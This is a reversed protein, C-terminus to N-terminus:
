DRARPAAADGASRGSLPAQDGRASAALTCAITSVEVIDAASCGRSLDNAQRALGMLIPGYARAGGLREVLKYGINGADLDPFILVNAHGAVVSDKAKRMGVDPDLAADAQLEGDFHRDPRAARALRVATRVKEVHPHEASGRTSFSLFAVHPVQGTLREHHDAALCGIEALQEVTPDPVVGCDAFTLVREPQPARGLVMLFFSSLTKNGPALGVLWLSARLVDATTRVAGAVFTDALGRHVRAAAQFLPDRSYRERDAPTLRDGRREALATATRTIEAEAGADEFTVGSLSVGARRAAARGADLPGLLVVDAIRERALREAAQLVRPDEVECLVLRQRRTTALRRIRDLIATV